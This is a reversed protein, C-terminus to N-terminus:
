RHRVLARPQAPAPAPHRLQAGPPRPPDLRFYRGDWVAPVDYTLDSHLFGQDMLPIRAEALPTFAGDIFAVGAALPNDSAKLAATRSRYGEFLADMTTM